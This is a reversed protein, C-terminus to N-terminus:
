RRRVLRLKRHNKYEGVPLASFVFFGDYESTVESMVEGTQANILKVSINSLPSQDAGNLVVGDIEGFQTFPFDVIANTGRRPILDLAKRAPQLYISPIERHM